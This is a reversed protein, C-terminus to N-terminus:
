KTWRAEYSAAASSLILSHSSLVNYVKWILVWLSFFATKKFPLYHRLVTFWYWSIYYLHLKLELLVPSLSHHFFLTQSWLQLKSCLSTICWGVTWSDWMWLLTDVLFTMILSSFDVTSFRLRVWPPFSMDRLARFAICASMDVSVTSAWLEFSLFLFVNKSLHYSLSTKDLLYASGFFHQLADNLIILFSVLITITQLVFSSLTSPNAVYM